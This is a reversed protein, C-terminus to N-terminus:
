RNRAEASALFADDAVDEFFYYDAEMDWPRVSSRLTNFMWREAGGADLSSTVLLIRKM